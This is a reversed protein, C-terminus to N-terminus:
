LPRTKGPLLASPVRCQGGVGDIVSTLSLTSLGSQARTAEELTFKSKSKHIYTHICTHIYVCV